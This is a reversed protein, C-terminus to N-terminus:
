RGGENKYNTIGPGKRLDCAKTIIIPRRGKWQKPGSAVVSVEPTM